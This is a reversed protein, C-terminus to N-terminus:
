KEGQNIFPSIESWSGAYQVENVRTFKQSKRAYEDPLAKM